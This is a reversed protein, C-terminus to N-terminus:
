ETIYVSITRQHNNDKYEIDIEGKRILEIELYRLRVLAKNYKDLANIYQITEM